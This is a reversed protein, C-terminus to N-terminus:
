GHMHESSHDAAIRKVDQYLLYVYACALPMTLLTLGNELIVGVLSADTVVSAFVATVGLSVLISGAILVVMLVTLRWFVSWWRGRVYERSIKMSERIGKNELVLVFSAFVFYVSLVVGPIVFLIFGIIVILGVLLALGAYRYLFSFAHHYATAVRLTRDHVALLLAIPTLFSLVTLVVSLLIHLVPNIDRLVWWVQQTDLFLISVPIIAYPASIGILVWVRDRFLALASKLLQLSNRM